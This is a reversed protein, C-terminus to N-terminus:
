PRPVPADGDLEAVVLNRIDITPQVTFLMALRGSALRRAQPTALKAANSTTVIQEAGLTGDDRVVRRCVNSQLQQWNVVGLVTRTIIANTTYYLDAGHDLRAIPFPDAINPGSSVAVPQTWSAGGDHSLMVYSSYNWSADAVQYALVWSGEATTSVHALVGILDSQPVDIPMVHFREGTGDDAGVFIRSQPEVFALLVRGDPLASAQPWWPTVNSVGDLAVPIPPQMQAGQVRVLSVSSDGTVFYISPVGHVVTGTAATATWPLTQPSDFIWSRDGRRSILHERHYAVGFVLLSPDSGFPFGPGPTFLDGAALTVIENDEVARCGGGRTV